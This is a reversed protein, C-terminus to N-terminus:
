DKGLDGNQLLNVYPSFNIFKEHLIRNKLTCESPAKVEFMRLFTVCLIIIIIASIIAAIIFPDM